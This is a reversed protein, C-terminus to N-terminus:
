LGIICSIVIVAIVFAIFKFMAAFFKSFWNMMM